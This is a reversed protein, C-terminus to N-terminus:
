ENYYEDELNIGNYDEVSTLLTSVSTINDSEDLISYEILKKYNYIKAQELVINYTFKNDIFQLNDLKIICVIDRGDEVSTPITGKSFEELDFEIISIGYQNYFKCKKDVTLTMILDVGENKNIYSVSRIISNVIKNMTFRKGGFWLESNKHVSWIIYEELKKIFKHFKDDIKIQLLNNNLNCSYIQTKPLQIYLADNNYYIDIYHVKDVLEQYKINKELCENDIKVNQLKNYSTEGFKIKKIDIDTYKYIM